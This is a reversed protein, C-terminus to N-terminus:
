KNKNLMETTRTFRTVGFVIGGGIALIGFGVWKLENYIVFTTHLDLVNFPITCFTVLLLMVPIKCANYINIVTESCSQNIRSSIKKRWLRGLITSVGGCVFTIYYGPYFGHWVASIINTALVCYGNPIQKSALTKYVSTKLWDNTKKNWGNTVGYTNRALEIDLIDVNRGRFQVFSSTGSAIYAMESITWVFYYKCRLLFMCVYAYWIKQAFSLVSFSPTIMYFPSYWGIGLIALGALIIAKTTLKFTQKQIRQKDGYCESGSYMAFNMYEDFSLVPGVLLSPIFYIYGLWEILSPYRYLLSSAKNNYQETIFQTLKITIMMQLTTSDITALLWYKNMRNIHYASLWGICGIWVGICIYGKQRPFRKMAMGSIWTFVIPILGLYFDRESFLLLYIVFGWVISYMHLMWRFRSHINSPLSKFLLCAPVSALLCVLYYIQDPPLIM